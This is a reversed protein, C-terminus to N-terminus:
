EDKNLLTWKERYDLMECADCMMGYEHGYKEQLVACDECNKKEDIQIRPSMDEETELPFIEDDIPPMVRDPILPPTEYEEENDYRCCMDTCPILPPMDDCDDVLPPMDDDYMVLPPMDDDTSDDSSSENDDYYRPTKKSAEIRRQCEYYNECNM